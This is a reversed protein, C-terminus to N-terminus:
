ERVIDGKNEEFSKGGNLIKGAMWWRENKVLCRTQGLWLCMYVCVSAYLRMYVCIPVYLYIHRSRLLVFVLCVCM